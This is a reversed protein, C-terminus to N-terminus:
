LRPLIIISLAAITGAQAAGIVGGVWRRSLLTTRPPVYLSLLLHFPGYLAAFLYILAVPQAAADLDPWFARVFPVMRPYQWYALGLAVLCGVADAAQRRWERRLGILGGILAVSLTWTVRGM